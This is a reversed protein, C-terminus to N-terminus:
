RRWRVRDSHVQGLANRRQGLFHARYLWFLAGRKVANAHRSFIAGRTPHGRGRRRPIIHFHQGAFLGQLARHKSVALFTSIATFNALGVLRPATTALISFGVLLTAATTFWMAIKSFCTAIM